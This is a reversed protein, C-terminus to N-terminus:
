EIVLIGACESVQTFTLSPFDRRLEAAVPYIEEEDWDHGAMQRCRDLADRTEFAIDGILIRGHAKLCIRLSALFASKQADTLHHLAYTAIIYDYRLKRLPEVLGQSFDGQLLHAKPMKASALAIMRSSFDQGYVICGSEYLRTTLAGTGFGIDLIVANPTEMVMQYIGDLVQRYGAFPYTNEADSIGVAHDYGDAWRDFGKDNLM